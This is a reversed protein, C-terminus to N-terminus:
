QQKGWCRMCFRMQGPEKKKTGRRVKHGCALYDYLVARKPLEKRSFLVRRLPPRFSLRPM